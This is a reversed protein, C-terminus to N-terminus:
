RGNGKQGAGDRWRYILGVEASGAVGTWSRFSARPIYMTTTKRVASLDIDGCLKLFCIFEGEKTLLSTFGAGCQASTIGYGM